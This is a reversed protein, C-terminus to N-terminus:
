LSPGFGSTKQSTWYKWTLVKGPKTHSAGAHKVGLSFEKM